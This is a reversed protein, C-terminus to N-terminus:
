MFFGKAPEAAGRAHHHEVIKALTDESGVDVIGRQVRQVAVHQCVVTGDSQRTTDAM